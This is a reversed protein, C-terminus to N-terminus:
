RNWVLNAKDGIREGYDPLRLVTHLFAYVACQSQSQEKGNQGQKTLPPEGSPKALVGAIQPHLTLAFIRNLLFFVFLNANKLPLIKDLDFSYFV